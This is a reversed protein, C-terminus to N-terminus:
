LHILILTIIPNQLLHKCIESQESTAHEEIRSLLICRIQCIYNSGCSCALQYVIGLKMQLPQQNNFCFNKGIKSINYATYVSAKDNTHKCLFTKLKNHIHLSLNGLFPLRIFIEKCTSDKQSYYSLQSSIILFNIYVNILFTNLIVM